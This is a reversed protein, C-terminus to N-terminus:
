KEKIMIMMQKGRKKNTTGFEWVSEGDPVFINGVETSLEM